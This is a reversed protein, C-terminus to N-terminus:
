KLKEMRSVLYKRLSMFTDKDCRDGYGGFDKQEDIDKIILQLDTKNFKDINSKINDAVITPAFTRRGLSYRLAYMLIDREVLFEKRM